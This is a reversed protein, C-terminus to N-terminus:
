DTRQWQQTVPNFGDPFQTATNYTPPVKFYCSELSLRELSSLDAGGFKAGSINVSQFSGVLKARVLIANEFSSGQFSTGAGKLVVGTLDAGVFTAAQFSSGGGSLVANRLVSNDFKAGQFSSVGGKLTANELDCNTLVAGQFANTPSTITVDRLHAGDLQARWLTRPKVRNPSTRDVLEERARALEEEAYRLQTTQRLLQQQSRQDAARWAFLFACLLMLMLLSFISFRPRRKSPVPLDRM